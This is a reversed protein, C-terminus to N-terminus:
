SVTMQRHILELCTYAQPGSAQNRDQALLWDQIECYKLPLNINLNMYTCALANTKTHKPM